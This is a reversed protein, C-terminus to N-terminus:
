GRAGIRAAKTESNFGYSNYCTLTIERQNYYSNGMMIQESGSTAKTGTFDSTAIGSILESSAAKCYSANSSTWQVVPNTVNSVYVYGDTVQSYGNVNFSDIAPAATVTLTVPSSLDWQGAKEAVGISHAGVILSSPVVFSLENSSIFSPQITTGYTGDLGIFTASDFNTGYVYVTTGVSASNPTIYSVTPASTPVVNVIVIKTTSGGSGTCTINYQTTYQTQSSPYPIVQLSGSSTLSSKSWNGNDNYGHAGALVCSTAYTSSWTLNTAQGAIITSPSATFIITPQSSATTVTLTVPITISSNTFNGSAILNTTYTGPGSVKTADVSVGVSLVGGPSLTMTQTNYVTNLWSPQNPVSLIFSVPASSGNTLHLNYSPPNSAGQVVNFNVFTDSPILTISTASTITFYNDSLDCLPKGSVVPNDINNACINVKYQGASDVGGNDLPIDISGNSSAYGSVRRVDGLVPSYLYATLQQGSINSSQYTVHIIGHGAVFSEGGNPSLVTISPQTANGVNVSVSTKAYLGQNDTVIFTPNYIGAKSYSHTFTATQSYSAPGSNTTPTESLNDGWSVSYVLYGNEPDSAKVTWMGTEGVKLITPGSIGSIIPPQNGTSSICKIIPCNNSDKGGTDYSTSGEQCVPASCTPSACQSVKQWGSPVACPTPFNKCEGTQPNQAPTIVQACAFPPPTTGCSYLKNLRARTSVGVYGTGHNLGVPTLIDSIYKEQFGTVASATQEDFTSTISVSEGDKQLATQLAIVASGNQGM